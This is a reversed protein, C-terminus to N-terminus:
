TRVGKGKSFYYWITLFSILCCAILVIFSIWPAIDSKGHVAYRFGDVMYLIPNLHSLLQWASPLMTVSYFVGGLYTLPTLIFNPIISTSDFSDAILGNLLGILSFLLSTLLAFIIMLGIHAFQFHTFFFAIALVISGTVM